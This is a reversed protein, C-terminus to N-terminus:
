VCVRARMCVVRVCRVAWAHTRRGFDFLSRQLRALHSAGSLRAVTAVRAQPVVVLRIMVLLSRWVLVVGCWVVGWWCRCRCAHVCARVDFHLGRLIMAGLKVASWTLIRVAVSINLFLRSTNRRTVPAPDNTANLVTWVVWACEPLGFSTFKGIDKPWIGVYRDRRDAKRSDVITVRHGRLLAKIGMVLGIPGGGVILYHKSKSIETPLFSPKVHEASLFNHYVPYSFLLVLVLVLLVPIHTRTRTRARTHAHIGESYHASSPPGCLFTPNTQVLQLRTRM